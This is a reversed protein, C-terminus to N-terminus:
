RRRGGGARGANSGCWAHVACFKGGSTQMFHKVTHLLCFDADCVHFGDKSGNNEQEEGMERKGDAGEEGVQKKKPSAKHERMSYDLTKAAKELHCAQLDDPNSVFQLHCVVVHWALNNDKVPVQMSTLTLIEQM